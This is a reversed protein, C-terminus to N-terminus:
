SRSAIEVRNSHYFKLFNVPLGVFGGINYGADTTPQTPAIPNNADSFVTRTVPTAVGQYNFDFDWRDNEAVWDVNVSYIDGPL